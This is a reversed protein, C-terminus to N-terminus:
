VDPAGVSPFLGHMLGKKQQQLALIKRSQGAILDDLSSLCDAVRRQEEEGPFCIEFECIQKASIHPIGGSTNIRDIYKHFKKSNVQHFVFQISVGRRARIRAVRQILLSGADAKSILASNKGVKSGDMGVVLDGDLLRYKQLGDADGSFYRDVDKNHRICGETVNIGRMLPVGRAVESIESSKFPYGSLLDVKEGMLFMKWEGEFGSFRLHPLFQGEVPYLQQMLGHKHTTLADLKRAEAGICDDISSLCDAIKRQEARLPVSIPLKEIQHPYLHVVSDGQAVRAVKTRLPGNLFYSLFVGNERSRLVNLDGGLAIGGPVVCAATAIDEKTEGSSPIIVDNPDGFFLAESPLSTKSVVQTIVEGYVTYLEGYRICQHIGECTIDSKAIGKGKYIDAIEGVRKNQWTEVFESFRFKPMATQALKAKALVGDGKSRM